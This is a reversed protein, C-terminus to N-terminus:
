TRPLNQLDETLGMVVLVHGDLLVHSAPPNVLLEGAPGAALVNVRHNKRLNLDRLSRGVFREPVKIEEISHHEDLELREMLNPRVLEIGLREGQMRSPFVVRDAGVRKLMKEHLDSTARAIVQRVRTGPSDKAILTATISAEIPESIAVVVTDMDLIGAVRLSEEDTCDVVRAEISPELQRLEEIAKSSRDVALVEAGNQMLQRCVASGFRGVGVIGFSQPDSETSQSWNWWDRM